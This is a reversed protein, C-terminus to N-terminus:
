RIYGEAIEFAFDGSNFIFKVGFPLTAKAEAHSCAFGYGVPINLDKTHERVLEAPTLDDDSEPVSTFEGFLIGAAKEFVGALKLQVLMRDIKYLPEGIDELILIKGTVDPFYPTGLLGCLVSLNGGCLVGEAKGKVICEYNGPNEYRYPIETKGELIDFFVKETYPNVNEAGFDSVALPGHFCVLGSKEAFNNLLATIDSYGVFIKPNNKIIDYDIKELLRITGYGGRSCIIAKIEKDTFFNNLDALRNKDEGALFYKRERAHPAVKVKYGANEFYKKATDIGSLDKLPGAPSLIGITDGKNLKEPLVPM